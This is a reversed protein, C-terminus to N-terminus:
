SKRGKWTWVLQDTPEKEKTLEGLVGDRLAGLSHGLVGAGLLCNEVLETCCDTKKFVVLSTM